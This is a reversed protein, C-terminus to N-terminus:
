SFSLLKIDRGLNLCMVTVHRTARSDQFHRHLSLSLKDLNSHLALPAWTNIGHATQQLAFVKEKNHQRHNQKVRKNKIKQKKFTYSHPGRALTISGPTCFSSLSPPHPHLTSFPLTNPWGSLSTLVAETIKHHRLSCCPSFFFCSLSCSSQFVLPKTVPSVSVVGVVAAPSAPLPPSPQAPHPPPPPPPPHPTVGSPSASRWKCM